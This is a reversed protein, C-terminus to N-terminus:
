CLYLGAGRQPACQARHQTVKVAPSGDSSRIPIIGYMRALRGLVPGKVYDAWAIMRIPRSSALLILIGDMWTVHNAVLLAPGQEPINEIGYTRVRYITRSLLWVVFRITAQPILWCAYIFIPFTWIGALLFVQNSSM